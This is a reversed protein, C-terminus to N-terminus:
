IFIEWYIDLSCRYQVLESDNLFFNSRFKFKLQKELLLKQIDVIMKVTVNLEIILAKFTKSALTVRYYLLLLLLILM